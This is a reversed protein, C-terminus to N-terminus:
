KDPNSTQKSFIFFGLLYTSLGIKAVENKFTVEGRGNSGVFVGTTAFFLKGKLRM